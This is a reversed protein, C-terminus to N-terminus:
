STVSRREKRPRGVVVWHGGRRIVTFSEVDETPNGEYSPRITCIIEAHDSDHVTISTIPVHIGLSPLLRGIERQDRASLTGYGDFHLPPGPLMASCGGVIVALTICAFIQSHPTKM